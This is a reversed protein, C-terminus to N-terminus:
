SSKKMMNRGCLKVVDKYTVAERFLHRAMRNAVTKYFSNGGFFKKPPDSTVVQGDFFMACRDAYEGCFDLDHTVMFITVGQAKLRGFIESLTAKFFPDLGKTPEDM